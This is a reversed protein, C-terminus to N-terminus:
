APKRALLAAALHYMEADSMTDRFKNVIWLIFRCNDPTYGAASNIRDISPSYHNPGRASAASGDSVVFPLGTLACYGTYNARAWEKTLTHERGRKKANAMTSNLLRLWIKRSRSKRVTARRREPNLAILEAQRKIKGQPDAAYRNRRKANEHEKNKDWSRKAVAAFHAAREEPTMAAIIFKSTRPKKM